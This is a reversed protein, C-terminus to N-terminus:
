APNLMEFADVYTGDSEANRLFKVREVLIEDTATKLLEMVESIYADLPMSRPNEKHGPMLETAVGPPALELVEVSTNRLQYRLSQSYSHIAAKTASYTPTMALPVFALGSSVTIITAKPQSLLHPLLATNLRIPGTLNTAIMNEAVALNGAGALVDEALMIGANSILVNLAPHKTIVNAALSQISAADQMDVVEYDMGPHAAVTAKLTAENRGSIIVKNGQKQLAVALAQGIGANGGTILITNNTLNM